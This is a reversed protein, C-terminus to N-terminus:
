SVVMEGVKRVGPVQGSTVDRYLDQLHEILDDLTEHTLRVATPVEDVESAGADGKGESGHRRRNRQRLDIAAHLEWRLVHCLTLTLGALPVIPQKFPM